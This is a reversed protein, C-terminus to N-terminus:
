AITDSILEQSGEPDGHPAKVGPEDCSTSSGDAAQFHMAAATGFKGPADLWDRLM